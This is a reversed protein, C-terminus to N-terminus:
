QILVSVLVSAPDVNDKFSSAPAIAFQHPQGPSEYRVDPPNGFHLWAFVLRLFYKGYEHHMGYVPSTQATSRLCEVRDARAITTAGSEPGNAAAHSPKRYPM